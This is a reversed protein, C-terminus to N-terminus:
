GDELVFRLGFLQVPVIISRLVLSCYGASLVASHGTQIKSFVICHSNVSILSAYEERGPIMWFYLSRQVTPWRNRITRDDGFWVASVGENGGRACSRHMNRFASWSNRKGSIGILFHSNCERQLIDGPACRSRSSAVMTLDGRYNPLFRDMPFVLLRECQECYPAGLTLDVLSVLIFVVCALFLAWYVWM